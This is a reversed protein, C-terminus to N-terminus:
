SDYSAECHQNDNISRHTSEISKKLQIILIYHDQWYVFEIWCITNIM